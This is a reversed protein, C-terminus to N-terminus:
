LNRAARERALHFGFPQLLLLLPLTEFIRFDNLCDAAASTPEIVVAVVVVVVVGFLEKIPPAVRSSRPAISICARADLLRWLKAPAAALEVLDAVSRVNVQAVDAVAVAQSDAGCTLSVASSKSRNISVCFSEAAASCCRRLKLSARGVQRSTDDEAAVCVTELAGAGVSKVRRM